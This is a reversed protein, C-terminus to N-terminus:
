IVFDIWHLQRLNLCIVLSSSMLLCCSCFKRSRNSFADTFLSALLCSSSHDISYLRAFTFMKAQILHATLLNISVTRALIMLRKLCYFILLNTFRLTSPIYLIVLWWCCKMPLQRQCFLLMMIHSHEMMPTTILKKDPWYLKLWM